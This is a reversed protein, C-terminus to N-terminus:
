TGILHLHLRKRRRPAWITPCRLPHALSLRIQAAAKSMKGTFEVLPPFMQGSQVGIEM